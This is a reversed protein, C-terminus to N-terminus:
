IIYLKVNKYVYSSDRTPFNCISENISDNQEDTLGPHTLLYCLFASIKKELQRAVITSKISDLLHIVDNSFTILLMADNSLIEFNAPDLLIEYIKAVLINVNLFKREVIRSLKDLINKNLLFINLKQEKRFDTIFVKIEDLAIKL